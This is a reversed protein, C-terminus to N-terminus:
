CVACMKAASNNSSLLLKFSKCILSFSSLWFVESPFVNWRLLFVLELTLVKNKRTCCFGVYYFPVDLSMCNFICCFTCAVPSVFRWRKPMCIDLMLSWENINYKLAKKLVILHSMKNQWTCSFVSLVLDVKRQRLVNNNWSVSSHENSM